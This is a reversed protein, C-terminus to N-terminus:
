YKFVFGVSVRPSYQNTSFFHTGVMDAQLRGAFHGHRPGLDVGGGVEYAFASQSGYATQPLFYAGGALGHGWIEMGHPISWRFRVGGAALAFRATYNYVSGWAGFFDGEPAIWGGRPYYLLGLDLGNTDISKGPVAYFRFFTYGVTAQWNYSQFVGTVPVQDAARPSSITGVPVGPTEARPAAAAFLPQDSPAPADAATSASLLSPSSESIGQAGACSAFLFFLGLLFVTRKM